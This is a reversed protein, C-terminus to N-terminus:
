QIYNVDDVLRYRTNLMILLEKQAQEQSSAQVEIAPCVDGTSIDLYTKSMDDAMYRYTNEKDAAKVLEKMGLFEEATGVKWGKSELRSQKAKNMTDGNSIM